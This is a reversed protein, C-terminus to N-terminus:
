LPARPAPDADEIVVETRLRRGVYIAAKFGAEVVDACNRYEPQSRTILFREDGLYIIRAWLKPPKGTAEAQVSLCAEKDFLM